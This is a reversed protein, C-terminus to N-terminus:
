VAKGARSLVIELLQHTEDLVDLEISYTHKVYISSSPVEANSVAL